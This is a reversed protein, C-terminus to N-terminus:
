APPVRLRQGSYILDPDGTAIRDANVQWLRDVYDAVQSNTAEPGLEHEAISWLCEGEAVVHFGAIPDARM